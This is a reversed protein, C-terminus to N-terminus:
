FFSFSYVPMDHVLPTKKIEFSFMGISCTIKLTLICQFNSSIRQKFRLQYIFLNNATSSQELNCHNQNILIVFHFVNSTFNKKLYECIILEGYSNYLSWKSIFKREKKQMKLHVSLITRLSFPFLFVFNANRKFPTEILCSVRVVLFPNPLQM